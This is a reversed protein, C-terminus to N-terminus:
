CDGEEREEDPTTNKRKNFFWQKFRAFTFRVSIAYSSFNEENDSLKEM